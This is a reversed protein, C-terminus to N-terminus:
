RFHFKQMFFLCYFPLTLGCSKCLYEEFVLDHPLGTWQNFTSDNTAVAASLFHLEDDNLGSIMEDQVHSLDIQM